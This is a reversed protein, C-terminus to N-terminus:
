DFKIEQQKKQRHEKYHCDTCLTVLNNINFFPEHELALRVLDEKNTKKPYLKVFKSYIKAFPFIHHAHLYKGKQGCLRCTFEDREFVKQTLKKTKSSCRISRIIPTRGDKYKPNNKGVNNKGRCSMSCYVIKSRKIRTKEIIIRKGCYGCNVMIKTTQAINACPVSCYKNTKKRALFAMGCILCTKITTSGKFNYNNEGSNLKGMCKKSCCINKTKNFRAKIVAMEKGCYSCNTKVRDVQSLNRCNNSCYKASEYKNKRPFFEKGCVACKKSLM